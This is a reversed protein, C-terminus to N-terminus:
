YLLLEKDKPLADFLMDLEAEPLAAAGSAHKADYLGRERVDYLTAEGNDMMERADISSLRQPQALATMTGTGIANDDGFPDVVGLAVLAVVIAFGGAVTLRTQRVKAQQRAKARAARKSM